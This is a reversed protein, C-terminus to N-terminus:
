KIFFAVSLCSRTKEATARCKLKARADSSSRSVGGATEICIL